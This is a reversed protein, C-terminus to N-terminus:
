RQDVRARAPYGHPHVHQQKRYLWEKIGSQDWMLAVTVLAACDCRVLMIIYQSLIDHIIIAGKM